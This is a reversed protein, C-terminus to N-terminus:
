LKEILQLQVRGGDLHNRHQTIPDSWRVRGGDMTTFSCPTGMVSVHKNGTKIAEWLNGIVEITETQLAVFCYDWSEITEHAWRYDCTNEWQLTYQFRIDVIDASDRKLTAYLPSVLTNYINPIGEHPLNLLPLRSHIRIARLLFDMLCTYHAMSRDYALHGNGLESLHATIVAEAIRTDTPSFRPPYAFDPLYRPAPVLYGGREGTSQQDPVEANNKSGETKVRKGKMPGKKEDLESEKKMEKVRVRKGSRGGKVERSSVMVVSGDSEAMEDDDDSLVIVEKEAMEEDSDDLNVVEHVSAQVCEEGDTGKDDDDVSSGDFHQQLMQEPHLLGRDPNYEGSGDEDESVFISDRRTDDYQEDRTQLPPPAPQALQWPELIPVTVFPMTRQMQGNGSPTAM